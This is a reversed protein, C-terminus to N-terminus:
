IVSQQTYYKPHGRLFEKAEQKIEENGRLQRVASYCSSLFASYLYSFEQIRDYGELLNAGNSEVRNMWRLFYAAEDLKAKSNAIAEM